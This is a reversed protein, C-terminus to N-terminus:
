VKACELYRSWAAALSLISATKENWVEMELLKGEAAALVQNVLEVRVSYVSCRAIEDGMADPRGKHEMHTRCSVVLPSLAALNKRVQVEMEM